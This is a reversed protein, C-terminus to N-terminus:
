LADCVLDDVRVVWPSAPDTFQGLGVTFTISKLSNGDFPAAFLRTDVNAGDRLLTSKSAKFDLTWALNAWATSSPAAVSPIDPFDSSNTGDAKTTQLYLKGTTPGDKVEAFFKVNSFTRVEVMFLVLIGGGMTERRYRMRCKVGDLSSLTITRAGYPTGGPNGGPHGIRLASPASFSATSEIALAGNTGTGYSDFIDGLGGTDFTTCFLHTTGPACPSTPGAESGSSSADSTSSDGSSGSSGSSGDGGSAGDAGGSSSSTGSSGSSLGGLDTLLSCGVLCALGGAALARPAHRLPVNPDYM